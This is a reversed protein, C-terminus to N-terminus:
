AMVPVIVVANNKKNTTPAAARGFAAWAPRSHFWAPGPRGASSRMSAVRPPKRQLAIYQFATASVTMSFLGAPPFQGTNVSQGQFYFLLVLLPFGSHIYDNM